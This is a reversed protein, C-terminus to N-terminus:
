EWRDVSQYKLGSGPMVVAVAYDGLIVEDLYRADMMTVIDLAVAAQQGNRVTM